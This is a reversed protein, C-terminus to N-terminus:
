VYCRGNSGCEEFSPSVGGQILFAARTKLGYVKSPIQKLLSVHGSALMSTTLRAARQYPTDKIPACLEDSLAADNVHMLIAAADGATHRNFDAGMESQADPGRIVRGINNDHLACDSPRSPEFEPQEEIGVRRVKVLQRTLPVLVSVIHLWVVTRIRRV